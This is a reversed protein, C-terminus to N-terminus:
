VLGAARLLPATAANSQLSPMGRAGILHRVHPHALLQTAADPHKILTALHEPHTLLSVVADADLHAVQDPDHAIQLPDLQFVEHVVEVLQDKYFLNFQHGYTDVLTDVYNLARHLGNPLARLSARREHTLGHFLAKHVVHGLHNTNIRRPPKVGAFIHHQHKTIIEDTDRTQIINQLFQMNVIARWGGPLDVADLRPTNPGDNGALRPRNVIAAILDTSVFWPKHETTYLQSRHDYTYMEHDVDAPKAQQVVRSFPNNPLDTADGLLDATIMAHMTTYTQPQEANPAAPHMEPQSIKVVPTICVRHYMVMQNNELIVRPQINYRVRVPPDPAYHFPTAERKPLALLPEERKAYFPDITNRFLSLVDPSESAAPPHNASPQSPNAAATRYKAYPSPAVVKTTVPTPPPPLYVTLQCM